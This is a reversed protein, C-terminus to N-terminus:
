DESFVQLLNSYDDTWLIRKPDSDWANIQGIKDLRSILERNDTVLVWDSLYNLEEEAEVSVLVAERHIEPALSRVVDGLELYRNTIHVALVGGPALHQDYLQFAERTLLHIPISDGSFADVVLLDFQQPSGAALEQELSIRADGIVVKVEGACDRLYTFYGRAMQEVQPNIEYFRVRDGSTAHAAMTGVGLGIVGIHMPPKDSGTPKVEGSSDSRRKQHYNLAVAPGTEDGYYTTAMGSLSEDLYQAGHVIRGHYLTHYDQGNSDYSEGVRLVGYFGRVSALIGDRHESIHAWLFHTMVGGGAVWAILVPVTISRPWTKQRVLGILGVLGLIATLILSLHLEFFGSFFRPAAVSVFLGGLVGGLAVLLFFGTLYKPAPKRRVMEGHCVMCCSFMALAYVAVQWVMPLDGDGLEHELLYLVGGVSAMALPMWIPRFYWRDHDFAIIFTILYLSLPLIWLFPVVAVDQCIQNTMALLLSCGTASALVWFIRDALTPRKAVEGGAPADTTPGANASKLVLLGCGAAALFYIGYGASWLTSQERLGFAPEFLFPYSLLGLLSGINSMAYLRYPSHTKGIGSESFWHQLLPGSASILVYPLGVTAFILRVIGTVPDAGGIPKLTESPVIPLTLLSLAILTLHVIVQQRRKLFNAILHAYAYGALLGAQFCLMCTTWVAPSGGFWPLISRAMIPQVQFLLFASSFVAFLFAPM